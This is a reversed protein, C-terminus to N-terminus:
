LGKEKVLLYGGALAPPLKFFYSIKILFGGSLSTEQSRVSELNYVIKDNRSSPSKLSLSYVFYIASAIQCLNAVNKTSNRTRNRGETSIVSLFIHINTCFFAHQIWLNAKM